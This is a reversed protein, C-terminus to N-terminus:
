TIVKFSYFNHNLIDKLSIKFFSRLIKFIQLNMIILKDIFEEWLKKLIKLGGFLDKSIKM